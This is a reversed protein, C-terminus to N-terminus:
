YKVFGYKYKLKFIDFGFKFYKNGVIMQNDIYIQFIQNVTILSIYLVTNLYSITTINLSSVAIEGM